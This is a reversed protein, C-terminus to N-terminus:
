FVKVIHGSDADRDKIIGEMFKGSVRFLNRVEALDDARVFSGGCLAMMAVILGTFYRCSASGRIGVLAMCSQGLTDSGDNKPIDDDSVQEKAM